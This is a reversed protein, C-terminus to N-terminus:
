WGEHLKDQTPNGAGEWSTSYLAALGIDRTIRTPSVSDIQMIASDTNSRGRASAGLLVVRYLGTVHLTM